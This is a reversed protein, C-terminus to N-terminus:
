HTATNILTVPQQKQVSSASQLTLPYFEMPKFLGKQYQYGQEQM